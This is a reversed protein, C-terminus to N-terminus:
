FMELADKLDRLYTSHILSHISTKCFMGLRHCLRQCTHEILIYIYIDKQMKWKISAVTSSYYLGCPGVTYHSDFVAPLGSYTKYNLNKMTAVTQYSQASSAVNEGVNHPINVFFIKLKM